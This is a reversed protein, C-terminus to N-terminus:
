TSGVKRVVPGPVSQVGVLDDGRGSAVRVKPPPAIFQGLYGRIGQWRLTPRLPPYNPPLSTADPRRVGLTSRRQAMDGRPRADSSDRTFASGKKAIMGTPRGAGRQRGGHSSSSRASSVPALNALPHDM